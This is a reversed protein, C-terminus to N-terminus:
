SFTSLSSLHESLTCKGLTSSALRLIMPNCLLSARIQGASDEGSTGICLFSRAWSSESIGPQTQLFIIWHTHFCQSINFM